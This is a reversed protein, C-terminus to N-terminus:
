FQLSDRDRCPGAPAKSIVRNPMKGGRSYQIFGDDPPRLRRDPAYLLAVYVYYIYTYIYEMGHTHRCPEKAFCAAVFIPHATFFFRKIAIQPVIADQLCTGYVIRLSPYTCKRSGRGPVNRGHDSCPHSTGARKCMTLKLFDKHFYQIAYYIWQAYRVSLTEVCKPIHECM